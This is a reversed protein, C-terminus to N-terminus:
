MQLIDCPFDCVRHNIGVGDWLSFPGGFPPGKGFETDSVILAENNPLKILM